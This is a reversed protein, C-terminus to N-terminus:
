KVSFKGLGFSEIYFNAAGTSSLFLSLVFARKQDQRFDTGCTNNMTNYFYDSCNFCTSTEPDVM